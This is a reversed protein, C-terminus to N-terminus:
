AGLFIGVLPGFRLHREMHPWPTLVQKALPSRGWNLGAVHWAAAGNRYGHFVAYQPVPREFAVQLIVRGRPQARAGSRDGEVADRTVPPRCGSGDEVAPRAGDLDGTMRRQSKAVARKGYGEPQVVIGAFAIDDAIEHAAVVGIRARAEGKRDGTHVADGAGGQDVVAVEVEADIASARILAPEITPAGALRDMDGGQVDMLPVEEGAGELDFGVLGPVQPAVLILATPGIKAAAGVARAVHGSDRMVATVEVAAGAAVPCLTGEETWPAVHTWPPMDVADTGISLPGVTAKNTSFAGPGIVGWLVAVVGVLRVLGRHQDRKPPLQQRDAAVPAVDPAKFAVTAPFRDSRVLSQDREGDELPLQVAGDVATGHHAVVPVVVPGVTALRRRRRLGVTGRDVLILQVDAGPGLSFDVAIVADALPVRQRGDPELAFDHAEDDVVALEVGAGQGHRM